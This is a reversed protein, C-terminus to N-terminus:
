VVMCPYGHATHRQLHPRTDLLLLVLWPCLALMIPIPPLCSCPCGHTSLWNKPSPHCSCPCGHASHWNTPVSPLCPCPLLPMEAKCFPFPCCCPLLPMEAKCFPSPRYCSLLPMEAKCFPSPCCPLMQPCPASAAFPRFAFLATNSSLSGFCCLPPLCVPCCKLVPLRLLLPASPLCPLMQPCPASAVFPRFAFLAANSSLSGYCILPPLSLLFFLRRFFPTKKSAFIVATKEKALLLTFAKKKLGASGQSPERDKSGQQRGCGQSPERDESGQQRGCGQSPERDESGQQRGCGQSPERDESGQQGDRAYASAGAIRSDDTGHTLVRGRNGQQQGNRAYASQGQQGTGAQRGNGANASQGHSDRSRGEMEQNPERGM